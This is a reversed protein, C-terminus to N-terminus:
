SQSQAPLSATIPQTTVFRLVINGVSVIAADYAMWNAPLLAQFATSGAVTVVIALANWWLTKSQWFPKSSV